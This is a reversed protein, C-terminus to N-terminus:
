LHECSFCGDRPCMLKEARYKNNWSKIHAVVALLERGKDTIRYSTRPPVFRLEATKEILGEKEMEKLRASLVKTTIRKARTHLHVFGKGEHLMIEELLPIM